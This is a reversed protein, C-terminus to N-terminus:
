LLLVRSVVDTGAPTSAVIAKGIVGSPGNVATDATLPAVTGSSTAYLSDAISTAESTLVFVEGDMQVYGVSGAAITANAVGALISGDTYADDCALVGSVGAGPKFICVKGVAISADTSLVLRYKSGEGDTYVNGIVTSGSAIHTSAKGLKLAPFLNQAM